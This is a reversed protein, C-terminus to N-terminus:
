CDYKITFEIIDAKLVRICELAYTMGLQQRCEAPFIDTPNIATIQDSTVPCGCSGYGPGM